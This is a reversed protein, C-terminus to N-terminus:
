DDIKEPLHQKCMPVHYPFFLENGRVTEKDIWRASVTCNPCIDKGCFYCKETVEAGCHDCVLVKIPEGNIEKLM